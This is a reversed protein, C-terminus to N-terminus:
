TVGGEADTFGLAESTSDLAAAIAAATAPRPDSHLNLVRSITPETLGAAKALTKNNQGCEAMRAALAANRKRPPRPADPRYM